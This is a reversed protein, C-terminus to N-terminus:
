ISEIDSSSAPGRNAFCSEPVLHRSSKSSNEGGGLQSQYGLVLLARLIDHFALFSIGVASVGFALLRSSSLDVLIFM